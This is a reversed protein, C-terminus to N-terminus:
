DWIAVEVATSLELMLKSESQAAGAVSCMGLTHKQKIALPRGQHWPLKWSLLTFVAWIHFSGCDEFMVPLCGFCVCALKADESSVPPLLGMASCYHGQCCVGPNAKEGAPIVAWAAEYSIGTHTGILYAVQEWNKTEAKKWILWFSFHFLFFIHGRSQIIPLYDLWSDRVNGWHRSGVNACPLCDM